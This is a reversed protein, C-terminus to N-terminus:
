HGAIDLITKRVDAPLVQFLSKLEPVMKTMFAGLKGVHTLSVSYDRVSIASTAHRRKYDQSPPLQDYRMLGCSRAHALCEATLVQGPGMRAFDPNFAGIFSYWCTSDVFAAEVAAVQEGVKLAAITLGGPGNQCLRAIAHEWDAHGIVRSGLGHSKIWQRKLRLTEHLLQQGDPGRLFQVTVPAREALRRRLRRMERADRVNVPGPQQLDVLPSEQVVTETAQQSLFSAAKADDRVRRFLAFCALAPNAAVPWARAFDEASAEPAALVDGYQILPDGLFRVVPLGAFKTLVTPFILVPRGARRIVVIRPIEGRELHAEAVARAVILSQFPTAAGGRELISTWDGAVSAVADAGEAVHVDCSTQADPAFVQQVEIARSPMAPM